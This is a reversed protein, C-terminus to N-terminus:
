KGKGKKKVVMGLMVPTLPDDVTFDKKDLEEASLGYLFAAATKCNGMSVIEIANEEAYDGFLKELSTKTFGWYHGWRSDDYRSVMSIGSVTLIAAGGPKLMKMINKCVSQIDYIFPLTQTLIFCDLDGEKCGEKTQLDGYCVDKDVYERDATLILSEKVGKGYKQTYTRSGIEMVRGRIYHANEKLFREIYVRDIPTGRDCGMQSSVLTDPWERIPNPNQKRCKKGQRKLLLENLFSRIVKEGKIKLYIRDLIRQMFPRSFFARFEKMLQKDIEVNELTYDSFGRGRRVPFMDEEGCHVGSGDWGINEILSERPLITLMDEKSQQYCWRIAWSDTKGEMQAKLADVMDQGGRNFRKRAKPDKLFEQFDKVEWDIREWRDIWTAWGCSEARYCTFVDHRYSELSPLNYTTGGISWIKENKEYFDLCDNMFKLFVSDTLLDDELVIVRGSEKMVQSVGGIISNALGKNSEAEVINVKKFNSGQAFERICQRVQAVKNEDKESKPGDSFIYLETEEALGNQNVRELMQKTLHPRNYVFVVLPALEKM